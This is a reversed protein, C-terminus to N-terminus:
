LLNSALKSCPTLLHHDFPAITNNMTPKLRVDVEEKTKKMDDAKPRKEDEEQWTRHSWRQTQLIQGGTLVLVLRRQNFLPSYLTPSWLILIDAKLNKLTKWATKLKKKSKKKSWPKKPIGSCTIKWTKAIETKNMQLSKWSTLKIRWNRLSMM